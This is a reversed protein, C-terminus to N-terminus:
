KILLVPCASNHLIKSSVSGLIIEKIKGIGRNGM